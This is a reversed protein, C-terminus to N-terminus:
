MWMARKSPPLSRAPIRSSNSIVKELYPVGKIHYDANKVLIISDGRKWEALKFPGTGVPPSKLKDVAQRPVIVADGRAINFLFMSDYKKMKIKM